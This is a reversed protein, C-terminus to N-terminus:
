AGRRAYVPQTSAVRLAEFGKETLAREETVYGLAQLKVIEEHVKERDVGIMAAINGEDRGQSLNRLVALELDSIREYAMYAKGTPMKKDTLYGQAQLKSVKEQITPKAVGTATAIQDESKGEALFQLITMDLDSLPEPVVPVEAQTVVTGRKDVMRLAEFGKETLAHGDTIYGDMQLRAIKESVIQESVGTAGAIEGPKKGWSLYRLVLIDLDSLVEYGLQAPAAVQAVPTSGMQAVIPQALVVPPETQVVRPKDGITAIGGIILGLGVLAIAGFLVYAGTTTLYTSIIALNVPVVASGRMELLGVAGLLFVIVGAVATSASL